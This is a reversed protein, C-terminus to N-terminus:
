ELELDGSGGGGQAGGESSSGSDAASATLASGSTSLVRPTLFLLLETKDKHFNGSKFLYGIIPIDKLYPVGTDIQSADNQYIGGIVATQGSKVMVKTAASRSNSGASGDTRIAGLFERQINVKLQVMGNNAVEPTVDLEMKLPLDRYTRSGEKKNESQVVSVTAMQSIKAEENHLTVIRPSSIVRVNEEQEELMLVANLDGLIDLTGLSLNFGLSGGSLMGPRVSLNPTMNVPGNPGDGMPLAQGAVDWQIGLRKNFSERAEVLKGEILVQAPPIDLSSIIKKIRELVEETETVILSNTRSDAVINGRESVMKAIQGELDKIKSYNIPIMQVKLAEVKRRSEVLKIADDEEQKIESMPSIRLVNGQRTYGLKKAKLILVLAQDWPVSKLKLSLTGTVGESMILNAGSEEAILNIANRVDIDKVEISIKKGYYKMNGSLFTELNKSSLINGKQGSASFADMQKESENAAVKGPDQLAGPPVVIISSGEVHTTPEGAGERLQVVVRVADGSPSQFADISGVSSEFDKTIYPRKLKAPLHAEKIEIVYQNSQANLRAEFNLPQSGEIVIVGGADNSEFKINTIEVKGVNTTNPAALNPPEEVIPDTVTANSDGAPPEILPDKTEEVQAQSTKEPPTTKEQVNLQSQPDVTENEKKSLEEPEKENLLDSGDALTQEKELDKNLESDLSELDEENASSGNTDALEDSAEGELALDDEGSGGSGTSDASNIEGDDAFEDQDGVPQGACSVILWVLSLLMINQFLYKM